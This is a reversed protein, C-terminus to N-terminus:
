EKASIAFESNNLEWAIVPRMLDDRQFSYAAPSFDRLNTMRLKKHLRQEKQSRLTSAPSCFDRGSGPISNM